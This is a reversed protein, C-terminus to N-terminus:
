GWKVGKLGVWCLIGAIARVQVTQRVLEEALGTSPIVTPNSTLAAVNTVAPPAALSSSSISSPTIRPLGMAAVVAGELVSLVATQTDPFAPEFVMHGVAPLCPVFVASWKRSQLQKMRQKGRGQLRGYELCTSDVPIMVATNAEGATVPM